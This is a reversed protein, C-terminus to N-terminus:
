EDTLPRRWRLGPFRAFGADTTVWTAGHEIALAALFADPVVNARAGTSQCLGAFISWHRAGARVPVAAPAGLVVECFELATAPPTPERYIRHNTVIRLFSALISESVGFPEPGGLADELWAKHEDHRPSERRRAYLYVNVDALLV